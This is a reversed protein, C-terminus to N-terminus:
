IRFFVIFDFETIYNIIFFIIWQYYEIIYFFILVINNYVKNKLIYIEFFM